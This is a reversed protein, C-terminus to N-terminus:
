STVKLKGTKPAPKFAAGKGAPRHLNKTSAGSTVSSSIRKDAIKKPTPRTQM